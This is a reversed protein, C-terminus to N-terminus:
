HFDGGGLLGWGCPGSLPYRSVMIIGFPDSTPLRRSALRIFTLGLLDQSPTGPLASPQTPTPYPCPTPSTAQSCPPRPLGSLQPPSCSLLFPPLMSSAPCDCLPPPLAEGSSPLRPKLSSSRTWKSGLPPLTPWGGPLASRSGLQVSFCFSSGHAALLSLVLSLDPLLHTQPM